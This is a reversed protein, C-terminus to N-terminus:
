TVGTVTPPFTSQNFSQTISQYDTVDYRGCDSYSEIWGNGEDRRWEGVAYCERGGVNLLNRGNGKERGGM